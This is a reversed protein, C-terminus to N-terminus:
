HAAFTPTCLWVIKLHVGFFAFARPFHALWKKLLDMQQQTWQQQKAMKVSMQM